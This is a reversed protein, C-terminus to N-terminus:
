RPGPNVVQREVRAFNQKHRETPPVLDLCEIKAHRNGIRVEQPWIVAVPVIRGASSQVLTAFAAEIESEPGTKLIALQLGKVRAAEQVDRMQHEASASSPNVLLAIVGARPVLESLLELRMPMLETAMASVGTLNGGPRALSAVLGRGVPDGTSFVIPITSTANKAALVATIGGAVIVDVKRAGLDAVFAPLRDYHGEARRYEITVSQGEVYGAESLGQRFAALIPASPGPSGASLYGIVPMAKQQAHLGRAPTMSGGLLLLLKRRDMM